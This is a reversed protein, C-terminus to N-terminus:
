RDSIRLLRGYLDSLDRILFSASYVDGFKECVCMRLPPPIYMAGLLMCVCVSDSASKAMTTYPGSLFAFVSECAFVGSGRGM